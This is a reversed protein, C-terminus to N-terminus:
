HVQGLEIDLRQTKLSSFTVKKYKVHLKDSLCDYKSFHRNQFLRSTTPEETEPNPQFNRPM